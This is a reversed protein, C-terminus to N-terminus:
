VKPKEMISQLILAKETLFEWLDDLVLSHYFCM